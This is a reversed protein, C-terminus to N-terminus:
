HTSIGEIVIFYRCMEELSRDAWLRLVTDLMFQWFYNFWCFGSMQWRLFTGWSGGGFLFIKGTELDTVLQGHSRYTPMIVHKWKNIVPDLLFTDSFYAPQGSTQMLQNSGGFVILKGLKENQRNILYALFLVPPNLASRPLLCGWGRLRLIRLHLNGLGNVKPFNWRWVDDYPYDSLIGFPYGEM